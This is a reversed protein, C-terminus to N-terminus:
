TIKDDLVTGGMMALFHDHDQTDIFIKEFMELYSDADVAAFTTINRGDSHSNRNIFRYFSDYRHDSHKQALDRLVERLKEKKCAFSFYYELINRMTNPLIIPNVIGSKVDKLTQWLSQYENLVDEKGIDQCRSYQNKTIRYLKWGKIANKDSGATIVLEQFFFLNHTMIVFKSAIGKSILGYYIMSSIEYIFNHSLSSIPDDIVIMKDKAINEKSSSGNCQEIFYLFSILTKEGESLTKFVNQYNGGGERHLRYTEKEPSHRVIEFGTVGLSKLTNNIKGITEEINVIESSKISNEKKINELISKKNSISKKLEDVATEIEKKQTDLQIFFEDNISRLYSLLRIELNNKELDYNDIKLNHQAINDNIVNISYKLKNCYIEVDNLTISSSPSSLKSEIRQSNEKYVSELVALLEYCSNDSSIYKCEDLQNRLVLISDIWLSYKVKAAEISSLRKKYSEDFLKSLEVKFHEVSLTQQCFPCIDDKLYEEGRKVWDGNGLRNIVDSLQSDSSIILPTNLLLSEDEDLIPFVPFELLSHRKDKDKELLNFEDNLQETTLEERETHIKIEDFFRRKRTMWTVLSAIPARRILSSKNWVRDIFTGEVSASLAEKEQLEESLTLIESQIQKIKKINGEIVAQIDANDSNLTFIGPQTTTSHFNEDIYDQNFVLYELRPDPLFTCKNYQPDEPKYFYGSLTSKGSGNQGYILTVRKSFDFEVADVPSYSRVGKISLMSM